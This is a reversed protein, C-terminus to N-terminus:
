VCIKNKVSEDNIINLGKLNEIVCPNYQSKSFIDYKFFIFQAFHCSYKYISAKPFKGIDKRMFILLEAKM